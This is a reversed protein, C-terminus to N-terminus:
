DVVALRLVEAETSRRQVIRSRVHEVIEEALQRCSDGWRQAGRLRMVCTRLGSVHVHRTVTEAAGTLAADLERYFELELGANIEDLRIEACEQRRKYAEAIETFGLACLLQATLGAIGAASVRKGAIFAEVALAVPEALWWDEQGLLMAARRVSDALREADFPEYRDDGVRVWCNSARPQIM